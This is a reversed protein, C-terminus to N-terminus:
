NPPNLADDDDDDASPAVDAGDHIYDFISKALAVTRDFIKEDSLKQLKAETTNSKIMDFALYIASSRDYAEGTRGNWGGKAAPAPATGGGTPAVNASYPKGSGKVKDLTADSVSDFGDINWNKGKQSMKVNVYEGLGFEELQKQLAENDKFFNKEWAEGTDARVGMVKTMNVQNGKKSTFTTDEIGTLKIIM